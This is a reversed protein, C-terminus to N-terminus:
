GPLEGVQVAPLHREITAVLDELIVPKTLAPLGDLDTFQVVASLVVVPIASWRPDQALAERLQWGDMVPMMLDLLILDAAGGDQLYDLAERGDAATIVDYGGARLLLALAERSVTDDEVLLLQKRRM